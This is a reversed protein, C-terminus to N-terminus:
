YILFFLALTSTTSFILVCILLSPVAEFHTIQKLFTDMYNNANKIADKIDGTKTPTNTTWDAQKTTTKTTSFTENLKQKETTKDPQKTSKKDYEQTTTKKEAETTETTKIKETTKTQDPQQQKTTSKDTFSTATTFLEGQNATKTTTTVTTKM